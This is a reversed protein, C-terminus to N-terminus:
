TMKYDGVCYMVHQNGWLSKKKLENREIKVHENREGKSLSLMM